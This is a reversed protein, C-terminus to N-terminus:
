RVTLVEPSAASAQKGTLDVELIALFRTDLKVRVDGILVRREVDLDDAGRHVVRCMDQVTQKLVLGVQPDFLVIGIRGAEGIVDKGQHGWQAEAEGRADTIQSVFAKVDVAVCLLIRRESPQDAAVDVHILDAGMPILDQAQDRRDLLSGNGCRQHQAFESTIRALAAQRHCQTLQSTDLACAERKVPHLVDFQATPNLNAQILTLGPVRQGAGDEQVPESFYTIAAVLILTVACATEVQYHGCDNQPVSHVQLTRHLRQAIGAPIDVLIKQRV